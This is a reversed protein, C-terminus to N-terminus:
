EFFNIIKEKYIEGCECQVEVNYYPVPANSAYEVIKKAQAPPLQALLAEKDESTLEIENNGDIAYYRRIHRAIYQMDAENTNYNIDVYDKCTPYGIEIKYKGDSTEVEFIKPKQLEADYKIDDINIDVIKTRGCNCTHHLTILSSVSIKRLHVFIFSLENINMNEFNINSEQCCVKIIDLITSMQVYVSSSEDISLVAKEIAVTFPSFLVERNLSPIFIGKKPLVIKPLM